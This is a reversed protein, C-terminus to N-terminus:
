QRPILRVRPWARLPWCVGAAKKGELVGAGAWKGPTCGPATDTCTTGVVISPRSPLAKAQSVQLWWRGAGCSSDWPLHPPTVM